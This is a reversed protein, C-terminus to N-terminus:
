AIRVAELVIPVDSTGTLGTNASTNTGTNVRRYFLKLTDATSITVTRSGVIARDDSVTVQPILGNHTSAVITPSATTGTCAAITMVCSGSTYASLYTRNLAFMYINYIGPTVTISIGTDYWTGSVGPVVESITTRTGRLVEGVYGAQAATGSTDGVINKASVSLPFTAGVAAVDLGYTISASGFGTISPLVAQVLGAASVQLVFGVPPTDGSTQYSINYNNGAGNKSFQAKVYFKLSTTASISVWGSLEGAEYASVNLVSTTANNSLPIQTRANTAGVVSGRKIAVYMKRGTASSVESIVGVPLSVHGVVSPETITLKGAVTGSLFVAEGVPPLTGETFSAAVLGSVEGSLTLEFQSADIVKSVVGVVEATNAASAIAKTYVSGNLYLVDGVVFGHGAQTIRDTTGGGGIASWGGIENYGEFVDETDNYRIMGKLQAATGTPRHTDNDGVPLKLGGTTAATSSIVKNVLTEPESLTAVTGTTPLTLSTPATTTLTLAHSGSRTLTAADNNAVGTGGKSPAVVPLSLSSSISCSSDITKASLTQATDRDVVTKWVSGSYVRVEGSTTNRYIRGSFLGTTPDSELEELGAAILDGYVLM